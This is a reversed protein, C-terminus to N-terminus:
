WRTDMLKGLQEQPSKQCSIYLCHQPKYISSSRKNRQYIGKRVHKITAFRLFSFTQGRRASQSHHWNLLSNVKPLGDPKHEAVAKWGWDKGHKDHFLEQSWQWASWDPDKILFSLWSTLDSSFNHRKSINLLLFEELHRGASLSSMM